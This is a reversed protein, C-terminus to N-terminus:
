AAEYTSIFDEEDMWTIKNAHYPHNAENDDLLEVMYGYVGVEDGETKFNMHCNFESKTMKRANVRGKKTYQNM